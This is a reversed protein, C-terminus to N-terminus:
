GEVIFDELDTYVDNKSTITEGIESWKEDLELWDNVVGNSSRNKRKKPQVNYSENTEELLKKHVSNEHSNPRDDNKAVLKSHEVTQEKSSSGVRLKSENLNEIFSSVIQHLEISGNETNQDGHQYAGAIGNIIDQIM